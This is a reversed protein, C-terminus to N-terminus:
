ASGKDLGLVRHSPPCTMMASGRGRHLLESKVNSSGGGRTWRAGLLAFASPSMLAVAIIWTCRWPLLASPAVTARGSRVPSEGKSSLALLSSLRGWSSFHRGGADGDNLSESSSGELVVDPRSAGGYRGAGGKDNDWLGVSTSCLPVSASAAQPLWMAIDDAVGRDTCGTSGSKIGGGAFVAM